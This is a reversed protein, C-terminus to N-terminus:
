VVNKWLISGDKRSLAVVLFQHRHTVPVNDHTGLAQDYVPPQAPGVPVAATLFIKDGLVIPSSHGKGPLAVKWRVNKTESWAIPPKAKPGVGNALPGRWQPWDEMLNASSAGWVQACLVALVLACLVALVLARLVNQM